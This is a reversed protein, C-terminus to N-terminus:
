MIYVHEDCNVIYFRALFERMIHVPVFDSLRFTKNSQRDLLALTLLSHYEHEIMDSFKRHRLIVACTFVDIVFLLQLKCNSKKSVNVFKLKCISKKVKEM